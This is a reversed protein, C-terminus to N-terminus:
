PNSYIDIFFLTSNLRSQDKPVISILKGNMKYLFEVLGDIDGYFEETDYKDTDYNFSTILYNM